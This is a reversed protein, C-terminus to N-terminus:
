RSLVIRRVRTADGVRLRAFYVGNPVARGADDSGAWRATREGALTGHWPMAVRRGAVDLVQLDGAGTGAFAFSAGGRSPNPWAPSFDLRTEPRSGVALVKRPMFVTIATDSLTRLDGIVHLTDYLAADPPAIRVDYKEQDVVIRMFGAADTIDNITM